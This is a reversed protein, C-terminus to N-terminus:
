WPPTDTSFDCAHPLQNIIETFLLLRLDKTAVPSPDQRPTSRQFARVALLTLSSRSPSSTIFENAVYALYLQYLNTLM